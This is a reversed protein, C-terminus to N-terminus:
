SLEFGKVHGRAKRLAKTFRSAKVQDANRGREIETLYMGDVRIETLDEYGPRSHNTTFELMQGDESLKMDRTEFVPYEFPTEHATIRTTKEDDGGKYHHLNNNASVDRKLVLTLPEGNHEGKVILHAETSLSGAGEFADFGKKRVDSDGLEVGRATFAPASPGYINAHREPYKIPVAPQTELLEKLTTNAKQLIERPTKPSKQTPDKDM